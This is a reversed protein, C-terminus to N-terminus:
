FPGKRQGIAANCKVVTRGLGIVAHGFHASGIVAPEPKVPIDRHDLDGIGHVPKPTVAPPVFEGHRVAAVPPFTSKAVNRQIIDFDIFGDGGTDKAVSHLFQGKLGPLTAEM